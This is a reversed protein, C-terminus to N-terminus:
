HGYLIISFEKMTGGISDDTYDTISLTWDGDMSEGYFGSVGIDFEDDLPNVTAGTFPMLVRLTTGSPSTLTIGLDQSNTHSLKFSLTIFEIFDTSGAVNASSIGSPTFSWSNTVNSELDFLQTTDDNSVVFTQKDSYWFSGLSDATYAKAAAIAAGGDVRGFGYWPHHKYNAANTVWSYQTIEKYVKSNTPDIQKSTTSLIHKIDRWTLARNAELMLAIVGTLNPAAASTGNMSSTYNCSPNESNFGQNNFDNSSFKGLRVYGKSCSSQDTSMIAPYSSGYEGGFSSVWLSAGPTSYSSRLDDSNVAGTVIAYPLSHTTDLAADGCPMNDSKSDTGKNPGCYISSTGDFYNWDNGSSKVYIAGNQDRLNATGNRFYTKKYSSAIRTGYGWTETNYSDEDQPIGVGYSMNFIDVFDNLNQAYGSHNGYGLSLAQDSSYGRKLLNSGILGVDPAVGRSGIKNYADAAIIGAVSTGHDGILSTNTPDHSNNLFNWSRGSIINPALDEHAIELGEDVVSVYVGNGDLGDAINEKVNLDVGTLAANTAFNNQGTNDLHWAHKYLPDTRLDLEVTGHLSDHTGDNAMFVITDLVSTINTTNYTLVGTAADLTITGNEPETVISYTLTKGDKQTGVLTINGGNSSKPKLELYYGASTVVPGDSINEDLPHSDDVDLVGDGDDDTDANNGTGDGDTDVSESSDLPFADASDEVGDGDDDTDANNGIGDGDTDVSESSDIPFADESDPVGDNDDDTDETNRIGDFDTDQVLGLTVYYPETTYKDDITARVSVQYNKTEDCNSAAPGCDLNLYTANNKFSLQGESSIEFLGVPHNGLFEDIEYTTTFRSAQDAGAEIKTIATTGEFVELSTVNINNSTDEASFVPCTVATGDGITFKPLITDDNTGDTKRQYSNEKGSRDNINLFNVQYDGNIGQYKLLPFSRNFTKTEASVADSAEDRVYYTKRECNPQTIRFWIDRIPSEYRSASNVAVGEFGNLYDSVDDINTNNVVAEVNLYMRDNDSAKIEPTITLSQINPAFEDAGSNYFPTVKIFEDSANGSYDKARVSIYFHDFYGSPFVQDSSLGTRSGFGKDLTWTYKAIKSNEANIIGKTHITERNWYRYSDFCCENKVLGRGFPAGATFIHANSSELSDPWYLSLSVTIPGDGSVVIGSSDRLAGQGASEIVLTENFCAESPKGYTRTGDSILNCSSGYTETDSYILYNYSNGATDKIPGFDGNGRSNEFSYTGTGSNFPSEATAMLRGPYVSYTYTKDRTSNFSAQYEKSTSIYLSPAFMRNAGAAFSSDLTKNISWLTSSKKEADIYLGLTGCNAVNQMSSCNLVITAGTADMLEDLIIDAKFVPASSATGDTFDFNVSIIDELINIVNVNITKTTTLEEDSALLNLAYSSKTEYDPSSKFSLVNNSLEFSSADDGSLSVSVADGDVDSVSFTGSITNQNEAASFATVNSITPAENVDNVTVAINQTTTFLQDTATVAAIYSPKTEYDPASVFALVGGNTITFDSGSVSITMPDGDADNVQVTGVALQNEDASLGDTSIIPSNDNVNEVNVTVDKTVTATGDTLSLVIQYSTKTEYDPAEKFTLVRDSSLDFIAEDTGALSLTLVDGTDIDSVSITAIATQNEPASLTSSINISPKDNVPQVTINADASATQDGQSITYSFSDSGNYDASPTYTVLYNILNLTGNVADTNTLTFPATAIYSDNSLVSIEVSGDEDLSVTDNIARIEPTLENADVSQDTAIYNLIDTKYSTIIEASATGGAIAKLDTQLTSAAFRIVATTLENTSKVEIIPMVSALAASTNAKAEDTVTLSKAVIVNDLVKTIFAEDEIDVKSSSSAYEIEVEESIAKFYDQTTETTINLDNTINQFAYALATLQNGKEYLYDNVGGDGKNLVPDFSYIDIGSDIGLSTNINEPAEMFAAVSTVPTVAKFDTHGTLKHTILLNDLLTNSDLDTGGISVLFGNAYKITFKGDNDSTTSSETSDAVWNSDEDVFVEAGRIYGDVIVGDTNRYGDVTVSSSRTGGSGTCSITYTNSGPTSITVAESGSTTKTGSWTGSASCSTTNTSSWTITSTNTLLVILPDASISVTPAPIVPAEGGGGGGGGGCSAIIFLIFISYLKNM